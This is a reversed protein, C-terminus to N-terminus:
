VKGYEYAMEEEEKTNKRKERKPYNYYIWKHSPSIWITLCHSYFPASLIWNRRKSNDLDNFIAYKIM